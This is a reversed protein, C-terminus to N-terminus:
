YAWKPGRHNPFLCNKNKNKNKYNYQSCLKSTRTFLDLVCTNYVLCIVYLMEDTKYKYGVGRKVM